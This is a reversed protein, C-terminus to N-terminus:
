DKSVNQINTLIPLSPVAFYLSPLVFINLPLYYHSKTQESCNISPNGNIKLIILM